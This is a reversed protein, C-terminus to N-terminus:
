CKCATGPNPVRTDKTIVHEGEEVPSLKLSRHLQLPKSNTVPVSPDVKIEKPPVLSITSADRQYTRTAGKADTYQLVFSRIGIARLITAPGTYHGLHKAKRGRELVEQAYPLKYFYVKAGPILAEYSISKGTQSLKDSTMRRHWESTSRVIEAMRMALEMVSKLENNDFTKDDDELLDDADLDTGRAGDALTQQFSLRAQPVSQAPLGHGAEFPSCDISSHPSISMAYQFTPLALIRLFIYEKGTFKCIM